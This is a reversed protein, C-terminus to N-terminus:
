KRNITMLIEIQQPIRSKSSAFFPFFNNEHSDSGDNLIIKLLMKILFERKAKNQKVRNLKLLRNQAGAQRKPKINGKENCSKKETYMPQVVEKSNSRNTASHIGQVKGNGADIQIQTISRIM